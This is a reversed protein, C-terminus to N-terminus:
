WLLPDTLEVPVVKLSLMGLPVFLENLKVPKTFPLPTCDRPEPLMFRLWAEVSVSLLTHYVRSEFMEGIYTEPSERKVEPKFM